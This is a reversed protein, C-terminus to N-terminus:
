TRGPKSTAVDFIHMIGRDTSEPLTVARVRKGTDLAAPRTAFVRFTGGGGTGDAKNRGTVGVLEVNGAAASSAWDTLEVGVRRTSGDTYEVTATGSAPGNTALGLFSISAAPAGDLEIRQGHPIWNDPEGPGADPWTFTIGTDGLPIEAGPGAGAAALSERSLSWDSLDLSGLDGRGDPTTGANNRADAGATHSPPADRAGTGWTGPTDSMRFDLTGGSRLFGADIWSSTRPVGNIRLGTTYREGRQVGRANIRVARRDGAPDIVIRDFMPATVVLDGTGYIAPYLGLNAFLYWASLSGQDDNGPLGSPSTDYMETVARYLVDTTKEPARLWNYVWPTSFAPQNSLYNGTQTYAGADLEKMLVDLDKAAAETGGRKAILTALNHPVLWGYQYGTSQNFQGRGGGDERVRLDFARDFGTRERPRIHRTVPDFVNMWNQARGMFFAYSRRDGLRRALQAIAFDDISYELVRSTAFDGKRNEIMGTAFYQYADTRRTTAAPLVQTSVMSRLAAKRDYRTAGMDDLTSLIVQLNDGQMRAQEPAWSGTQETLLVISHNIDSAVGPFTLAILQAQSRYMDWGSGAFNKYFHRGREIRHVKGDYGLYTGDVDDRINPHLLSHYLATYFKTRQEDTGGTVDITGLAERWRRAAHARVKGFGAEGVEADRNEAANAVSVFSLGTKATVKAGDAFTIWAGTDHRLDAGTDGTSKRVHKAGASMEGDQWVGYSAFDRDYTTSFYARYRNGNDCLDAGHTWGSVTRTEPDITVETGFTRNNPGSADLILTSSGRDPFDFESVATRASATLGVKVGNDLGVSYHGPEAVENAHDFELYYKKIDASPNVPLAGNRLEGAYPIVPFEYGGYRGTCGSGSYRTMGFGRILGATYEYGGKEGVLPDGPKYTTPSPQVMGFPVAAGPYTNGYADNSKNQTTDMETGIFQDVADFPSLRSDAAAPVTVAMAPALACGVLIAIRRRIRASRRSPM